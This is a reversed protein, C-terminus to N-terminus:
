HPLANGFSGFGDAYGGLERGIADLQNEIAVVDSYSPVITKTCYCSWPGEDSDQKVSVRFGLPEVRRAVQRGVAESPVAVVFDIEMPRSLDSGTAALRRLADGTADNPMDAM